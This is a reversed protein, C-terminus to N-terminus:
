KSKSSSLPFESRCQKAKFCIDCGSVCISGSDVGPLKKIVKESAHGMRKHLVELSEM